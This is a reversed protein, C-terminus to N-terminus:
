SCGEEEDNEGSEEIIPVLSDKESKIDVKGSLGV